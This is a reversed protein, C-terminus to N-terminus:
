LEQIMNFFNKAGDTKKHNMKIEFWSPFYVKIYFETLIELNKSPKEISVYYHLVRCGLTLWRSHVIPGIKLMGLDMDVEGLM